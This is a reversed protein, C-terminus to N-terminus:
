EGREEYSDILQRLQKLDSPSVSDGGLFSAVMRSISGGYMKGLFDKTESVSIEDQTYLAECQFGPETRQVIGKEVLRNLFTYTTNRNWKKVVVLQKIIDTAPMSGQEWLIRMINLEGDTVKPIEM